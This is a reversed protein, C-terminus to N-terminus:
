PNPRAPRTLAPDRVVKSSRCSLFDVRDAGRIARRVRFALDVLAVDERLRRYEGAPDGFDAAVTWGDPFHGLQSALSANVQVVLMASQELALVRPLDAKIITDGMIILVGDGHLHERAVYIAHGNGLAERQEVFHVPIRYRGRVYEEIKEAPM